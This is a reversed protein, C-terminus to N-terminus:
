LLRWADHVQRFIKETRATVDLLSEGLGTRSGSPRRSHTQFYIACPGGHAARKVFSSVVARFWDIKSSLTKPYMFGSALRPLPSRSHKIGEM